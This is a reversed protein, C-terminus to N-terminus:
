IEFNQNVEKIIEDLLQGAEECYSLAFSFKKKLLDRKEYNQDIIYSFIKNFIAYLKVIGPNVPKSYGLERKLYKEKARNLATDTPAPM